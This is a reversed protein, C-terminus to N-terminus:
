RDMQMCALPYTMSLLRLPKAGHKRLIKRAISKEARIARDHANKCEQEYEDHAGIKSLTGVNQIHRIDGDTMGAAKMIGIADEYTLPKGLGGTLAEGKDLREIRDQAAAIHGAAGKAGTEADASKRQYEGSLGKLDEALAAQYDKHDTWFKLDAEANQRQLERTEDITVMPIQGHIADLIKIQQDGIRNALKDLRKHLEFWFAVRGATTMPECEISGLGAVHEQRVKGDVRHPEVLSTQLRSATRRFRVFM